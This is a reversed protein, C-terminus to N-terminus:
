KAAPQEFDSPSVWGARVNEGRMFREYFGATRPDANPYRDFVGGQGSMRPDGQQKLEAFLADMLPARTSEHGAHVALNRLCDPDDRLNYLEEAPRLGFCWAWHPDDPHQRHNALIDTKTAGGDCDLYGTEPNGAPWRTPEFNRLYLWDGRVIGRTPYGWDHPRGVDTREKGILVHDRDPQIIGSKESRFIETLSRGAPAAMGTDAWTLGALEVLTPAIDIFSIFDDVVRGPKAIGRKWMAAFPIHNAFEYTNGKVRPFPMGHDSTVIVLTNELLGRQDLTALMRGLHRDFHEVEFAYDLMDNRVTENDPWYGPVRDIDALKRGGKAVGSGFEYGRHPEIAGYWFCWPTGAPAADLFAEFNGAYDNDSIGNAPPKAKRQNFAVGTMARPMGAVNKAVGPGWGKQTYGVFWGHEALAEGWGKFEAPFFCVHNGAEKLQWSNRGTLICARSPACKANPTYARTFRLGEAAVRDFAPTSVWRTGYAGGHLGWDDAIAFLINPLGALETVAGAGGAVAVGLVVAAAIRAM